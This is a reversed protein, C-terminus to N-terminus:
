LIYAYSQQIIRCNKVYKEPFRKVDNEVLKEHWNERNKTDNKVDVKM